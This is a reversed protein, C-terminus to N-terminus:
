SSATDLCSTSLLILWSTSGIVILVYNRVAEKFYSLYSKRIYCRGNWGGDVTPLGRPDLPVSKAQM